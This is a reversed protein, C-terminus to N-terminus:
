DHLGPMEDDPVIALYASGPPIPLTSGDVDTFSFVADQSSRTWLGRRVQGDHLVYVEGGGIVDFTPVDAGASDAYGASKQNAMLLILTERTMPAAEGDPGDLVEQPADGQYRVFVGGEFRWDVGGALPLSVGSVPEGGAWEGGAWPGAAGTATALPEPTVFMDHPRPRELSQFAVSDEPTVIIAGTAAVSGVVFGQGGTTYVVPDFLALLDASVPRLSRVPGVLSPVNEGYIATFRSLGGEVPVEILLDAENLGIQLGVDPVNDVVVAISVAAVPAVTDSEADLTTTVIEEDTPPSSTTTSAEIADSGTPETDTLLMALAVVLAVALLISVTEWAHARVWQM